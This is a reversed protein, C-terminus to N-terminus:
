TMVVDFPMCHIAAWVLLIGIAWLAFPVEFFYPDRKVAVCGKNFIWLGVVLVVVCGIWIM